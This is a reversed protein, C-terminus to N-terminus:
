GQKGLAERGSARYIEVWRDLKERSIGFRGAIAKPAEDGALMALVAKEMEVPDLGASRPGVEPAREPAAAFMVV